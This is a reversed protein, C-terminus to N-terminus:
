QESGGLVRRLDKVEKSKRLDQEVNSLIETVRGELKKVSDLQTEAEGRLRRLFDEAKKGDLATVLDKELGKLQSKVDDILREVKQAEEPNHEKLRSVLLDGEERIFQDPNEKFRAILQDLDTGGFKRRITTELSDLEKSRKRLESIVEGGIEEASKGKLHEQQFQRMDSQARKFDGTLRDIEAVLGPNAKKWEDLLRNGNQELFLDPNNLFSDLQDVLESAVRPRAGAVEAERNADSSHNLAGRLVEATAPLSYFLITLILPSLAKM